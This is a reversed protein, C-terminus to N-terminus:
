MSLKELRSLVHEIFLRGLDQITSGKDRGFSGSLCSVVVETYQEGMIAPLHCKAIRIFETQVSFANYEVKFNNNLREFMKRIGKWAIRGVGSDESNPTLLSEWLGVELLVVGLSYIDDLMSYKQWPQEDIPTVRVPSQYLNEPHFPNPGIMPSDGITARSEDFAALFPFGIEGTSSSHKGDSNTPNLVIISEPQIRKHVFASSHVYFVSSAIHCALRVRHNLPHAIWKTNLGKIGTKIVLTTRYGITPYDLSADEVKNDLSSILLGRLSQPYDLNTPLEYVIGFKGKLFSGRSRDENFYGVCKLISMLRDNSSKLMKVTEIISKKFMDRTGEVNFTIGEYAKYEILIRRRSGPSSPRPELVSSYPLNVFDLSNIGPYLHEDSTSQPHLRPVQDQTTQPLSDFLKSWAILSFRTSMINEWKDFEDLLHILDEEGWLAIKAASPLEPGFIGLSRAKQYANLLRLHLTALIEFINQEDEPTLRSCIAIYTQFGLNLTTWRAQFREAVDQAISASNAYGQVKQLLMKGIVTCSDIVGPIGLAFSAIDLKNSM